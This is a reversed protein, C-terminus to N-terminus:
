AKLIFQELDLYYGVKTNYFITIYSSVKYGDKSRIAEYIEPCEELKLLLNLMDCSLSLRNSSSLAEVVSSLDRKLIDKLAQKHVALCEKKHQEQRKKKNFWM